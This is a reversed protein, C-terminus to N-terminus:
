VSASRYSELETPFERAAKRLADIRSCRERHQVEDIKKDFIQVAESKTIPSTEPSDSIEGQYVKYLEPFQERAAIMAGTRSLKQERRLADAAEDFSKPVAIEKEILAVPTVLVPELRTPIHPAIVEARTKYILTSNNSKMLRALAAEVAPRDVFSIEDIRLNKLKRKLKKM